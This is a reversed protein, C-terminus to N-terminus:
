RIGGMYGVVILVPLAAAAFVAAWRYYQLRREAKYTAGLIILGIIFLAFFLNPLYQFARESDYLAPLFRDLHPYFSHYERLPTTLAYEENSALNYFNFIKFTYRSYTFCNLGILASVFVYGYRLDEMIRLLAFIVFPMIVLFGSLAFRGAFSYGGYWNIHLANPVILSAYVALIVVAGFRYKKLFPVVFLLGCFCVPNQIFYGQFRDIHLGALVMLAHPSLELAGRSYPGAAAGFAFLNYCALIGLSVTVAGVFVVARGMSKERRYRLFALAAALVLAPATFKIQLWPLISILLALFYDMKGKGPSSDGWTLLFSGAYLAIIGAPLDPYIQNSAPIVPAAFLVASSAVARHFTNLSFVGSIKWIVPVMLSSMLVMFLKVGSTGGIRWPLAIMIPLGINHVPYLGNPGIVAHTNGPAPVENPAALGPKYIRRTEFERQYPKGQELTHDRVMGDAVVLYHPEDGTVLFWGNSTWIFLTTLALALYLAWLSLLAASDSRSM